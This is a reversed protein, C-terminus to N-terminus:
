SLTGKGGKFPVCLRIFRPIAMILPHVQAEGIRIVGRRSQDMPKLPPSPMGLQIFRPIAMILPHAQAEMVRIVGRRSQDMPPGKAARLASPDIAAHPSESSPPV